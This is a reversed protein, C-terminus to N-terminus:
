RRYKRPKFSQMMSKKQGSFDSPLFNISFDLMCINVRSHHNGLFKFSIISLYINSWVWFWFFLFHFNYSFYSPFFIQWYKSALCSLFANEHMEFAFYSKFVKFQVCLINLWYILMDLTLKRFIFSNNYQRLLWNFHM